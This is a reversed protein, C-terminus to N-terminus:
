VHARGIQWGQDDTLHLHLINIKHLALNDIMRFVDEKPFFHRSVDLLYGRWKFTPNDEISVVPILWETQDEKESGEIEVPLLQRLTQMAYFFGAPESASIKIRNKFVELKYAEEDLTKETRFIIQNSGEKGGIIIEPKWGATKDFMGALQAAIAQQSTNEVVLKTSKNFRFSSEGLTMKQVQPILSLESETFTKNPRCNWFLACCLLIIIGKFTQKM